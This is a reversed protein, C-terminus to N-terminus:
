NENHTLQKNGRKCATNHSSSGCCEHPVREFEPPCIFGEVPHCQIEAPCPYVPPEPETIVTFISKRSLVQIHVKM